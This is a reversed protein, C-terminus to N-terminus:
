VGFAMSPSREVARIISWPKMKASYWWKSFPHPADPSWYNSLTIHLSMFTLSGYWFNPLSKSIKLFKESILNEEEIEINEIQKRDTKKWIGEYM